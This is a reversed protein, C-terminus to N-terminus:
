NILLFDRLEEKVQQIIQPKSEAIDIEPDVYLEKYVEYNHKLYEKGRSELLLLIDEIKEDTTSERHKAAFYKHFWNHYSM